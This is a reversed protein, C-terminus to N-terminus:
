SPYKGRLWNWRVLFLDRFMRASDKVAHVRSAPSDFWRVPVEAIRFGYKRALFLLEVDFSFGNLTQANFLRQAASREFLKFGCQSDRIGPLAVAQVFLNFTRGMTQRYWPQRVMVQSDALARSGIAM